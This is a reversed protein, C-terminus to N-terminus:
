FDIFNYIVTIAVISCQWFPMKLRPQVCFFHEGSNIYDKLSEM